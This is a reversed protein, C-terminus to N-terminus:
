NSIETTEVYFTIVRGDELPYPFIAPRGEVSYITPTSRVTENGDEQTETIVVAYKKQTPRQDLEHLMERVVQFQPHNSDLTITNDKLSIDTIPGSFDPNRSRLIEFADLSLLYQIPIEVEAQSEVQPGVQPEMALTLTAVLVTSAALLKKTTM